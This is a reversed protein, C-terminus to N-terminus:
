SLTRAANYRTVNAAAASAVVSRTINACIRSIIRLNGHPKVFHGRKEEGGQFELLRGVGDDM